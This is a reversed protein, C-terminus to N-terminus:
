ATHQCDHRQVRVHRPLMPPHLLSCSSDGAVPVCPCLHRTVAAHHARAVVARCGDVLACYPALAIHWQWWYHCATALVVVSVCAAASANLFCPCAVHLVRLSLLSVDPAANSRFTCSQVVAAAADVIALGGGSSIISANANRAVNGDFVAGTVTVNSQTATYLNVIVAGGSRGATNRLFSASGGIHVAAQAAGVAYIFLAGGGKIFATNDAFSNNGTLLVSTSTTNHARVAVAGGQYGTNNQFTNGSLEISGEVAGATLVLAGGIMQVHWHPLNTESPLWTPRASTSATMHSPLQATAAAGVAHATQPLLSSYM